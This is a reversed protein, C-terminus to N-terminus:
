GFVAVITHNPGLPTRSAICVFVNRGGSQLAATTRDVVTLKRKGSYHNLLEIASLRLYLVRARGVELSRKVNM